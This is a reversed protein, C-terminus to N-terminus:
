KVMIKSSYRESGNYVEVVYVGKKLNSVDVKRDDLVSSLLKEGKLSYINLESRKGLGENKIYFYNGAPNPYIELGRADSYHKTIFTSSDDGPSNVRVDDIFVTGSAKGLLIVLEWDAASEPINMEWGLSDYDSTLETASSILLEETGDFHRIGIKVKIDEAQTSKAKLSVIAKRGRLGSLCNYLGNVLRGDSFNDGGSSIDIKASANGSYADSSQSVTGTFSGSTKFSWSPSIGEEFDPDNLLYNFDPVYKTNKGTTFFYHQEKWWSGALTLLSDKVAQYSADNALNVKELPDAIYDYLEMDEIKNEDWDIETPIYSTKDMWATFRYRETRFSYGMNGGARFQSVACTKNIAKGEIAPSLLDGELYDPVDFGALDVLTPYIDYSDVPRYCVGGKGNPVAIILPLHTGNEFNTHKGWQNHDGLHYGHDGWIVIVTNKDLGKAELTDLLMGVMDDIYSTCASYAHIIRRQLDQDMIATVDLYDWDAPVDVYKDPNPEPKFYIYGPAGTVTDQFPALEIKDPDYMDWYKKPSIFPIHPKKFGVALFFHKQPDQAFEDLRKLALLCSQGDEYGDFDVGEPGEETVTNATVRYQGKVFDGYEPPYTYDKNPIYPITWSVSDHGDDVNRPDFVKGIGVTEYGKNKFFQPLTIAAPRIDRLQTSLNKIGTGDPTLGSLMSSRSPGCVSWGCYANSFVIGRDALRDINPSKINSNGYCNLQPKLDDIAIFLINKHQAFMTFGGILYIILVTIKAIKNQM